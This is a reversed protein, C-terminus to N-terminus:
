YQQYIKCMQNNNTIKHFVKVPNKRKRTTFVNKKIKQSTNTNRIKPPYNSMKWFLLLLTEIRLMKFYRLYKKKNKLFYGEGKEYM